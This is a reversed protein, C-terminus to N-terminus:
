PKPIAAGSRAASSVNAPATASMPRWCARGPETLSISRSWGRWRSRAAGCRWWNNMRSGARSNRRGARDTSPAASLPCRRRSMIMVGEARLEDIIPFCKSPDDVPDFKWGRRFVIKLPSVHLGAIAPNTMSRVSDRGEFWSGSSIEGMSKWHPTRRAGVRWLPLGAAVMQECSEAMLRSPSAASRGGDILWDTLARLKSADM